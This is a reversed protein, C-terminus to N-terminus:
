IAGEHRLLWRKTDILHGHNEHAFGGVGAAAVVRHCPIVLPFPNDGCAQGVARAISGADRALEGYSRTAGRPIAAIAAWIRRRFPTGRGALPLDFPFDPDSLYNALQGIAKEALRNAPSIEPQGPPLFEITQILQDDSLIGVAGFPASMVASFAPSASLPRDAPAPQFLPAMGSNQAQPM